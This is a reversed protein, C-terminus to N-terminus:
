ISLTQMDLNIRSFDTYNYEVADYNNQSNEAFNACGFSTIATCMLTNSM